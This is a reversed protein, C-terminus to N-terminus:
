DLMEFEELELQELAADIDDNSLERDFWEPVRREIKGLIRERIKQGEAVPVTYDESNGFRAAVKRLADNNSDAVIEPIKSEHGEAARIEAFKKSDEKLSKKTVDSWGASKSFTHGAYGFGKVAKHSYGLRISAADLKGFFERQEDSLFDASKGLTKTAYMVVKSLYRVTAENDGTQIVRVDVRKGWAYKKYTYSNTRSLASYALMTDIQEPVRVLVHLHIAGRNQYERVASWEFEGFLKNLNDMSRRFLETVNHNWEVADKYRYHSLRLPVGSVASGWEHIEGCKCQTLDDDPGHPVAHTRGFSPATLTMLFYKYGEVEDMGSGILKKTYTANLNACSKCTAYDRSWCRVYFERVQRPHSCVSGEEVQESALSEVFEKSM